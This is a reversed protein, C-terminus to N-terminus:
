ASKKDRRLARPMKQIWEDVLERNYFCPATEYPEGNGSVHKYEKGEMWSTDRAHKITSPKLGTIQVLLSESVWKNAVMQIINSM